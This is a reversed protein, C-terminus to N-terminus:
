TAIWTNEGGPKLFVMRPTYGQFRGMTCLKGDRSAPVSLLAVWSGRESVVRTRGSRDLWRQVRRAVILAGVKIWAPREGFSYSVACTTLGDRVDRSLCFYARSWVSAQESEWRAKAVQHAERAQYRERASHVAQLLEVDSVSCAALHRGFGACGTPEVGAIQALQRM